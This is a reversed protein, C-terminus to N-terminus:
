EWGGAANPDNHDYSLDVNEGVTEERRKDNSIYVAHGSDPTTTAIAGDDDRTGVINSNSNDGGDLYGYITGGIKMFTSGFDVYVGGGNNTATNKSITGGTMTFTGNPAVYVGSGKAKTIVSNANMVLAGGDVKVAAAEKNGGDLTVNKDLVLTNGTEVTFLDTDANNTITRTQEDGCIVITKKVDTDADADTGEFTIGGDKIPIDAALAILYNGEQESNTIYTVIGRLEEENEVPFVGSFEWGEPVSEDIGDSKDDGFVVSCAGMLAAM